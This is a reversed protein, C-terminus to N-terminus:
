GSMGDVAGVGKTAVRTPMGAEGGCGIVGRSCREIVVVVIHILLSAMSQDDRYEAWAQAERPPGKM